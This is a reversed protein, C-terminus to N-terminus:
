SFPAVVCGVTRSPSIAYRAGLFYRKDKTPCAEAQWDSRLESEEGEQRRQTEANFLM